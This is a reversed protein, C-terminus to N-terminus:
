FREFDINNNLENPWRCSDQTFRRCTQQLSYTHQDHTKQKKNEKGSILSIFLCPPLPYQYQLVSMSFICHECSFTLFSIKTLFILLSLCCYIHPSYISYCISHPSLIFVIVTLTVHKWRYLFFLFGHFWNQKFFNGETSYSKWTEKLGSSVGNQRV